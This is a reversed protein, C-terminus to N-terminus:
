DHHFILVHILSLNIAFHSTIHIMNRRISEDIKLCVRQSM